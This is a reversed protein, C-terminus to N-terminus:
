KKMLPICRDMFDSLMHCFVESTRKDTPVGAYELINFIAHGAEHALTSLSKDFVGIIQVRGNECNSSLGAADEADIKDAHYKARLDLFAARSTVFYLTAGFPNADMRTIHKASKNKNAM